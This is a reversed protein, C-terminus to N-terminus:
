ANTPTGPTEGMSNPAVLRGGQPYDGQPSFPERIPTLLPSGNSGLNFGGPQHAQQPSGLVTTASISFAM